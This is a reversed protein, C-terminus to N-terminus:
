GGNSVPALSEFYSRVFTRLSAPVPLQEVTRAARSSYEPYVERYPVLANGEAGQGLQRGTVTQEGSPDVNGEAQLREAPEGGLIPNFIQSEGV